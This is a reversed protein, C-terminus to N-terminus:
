NVQIKHLGAFQEATVPRGFYFGQAEDCEQANLFEVDEALEVGEAIVKLKLTRGMSIIASVITTDEPATSIQSVFSQDIKLSNIPLKRLYSLSSYGTGFDDISVQVGRDRLSTLIPAGFRAREMLGSETLEINLSGPSLSTEELITMLSPLFRDSRFQVASVNVSM